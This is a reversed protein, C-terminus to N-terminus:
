RKFNTQMSSERYSSSSVHMVLCMGNADDSSIPRCQVRGREREGEKGREREGERGREREGEINIFLAHQKSTSSETVDVGCHSCM